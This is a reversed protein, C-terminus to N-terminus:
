RFLTRMKIPINALINFLIVFHKWSYVKSRRIFTIKNNCFNLHFPSWEEVQKTRCVGRFPLEGKDLPQAWGTM